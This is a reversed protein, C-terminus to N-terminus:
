INPGVGETVKSRSLCSVKNKKTLYAVALVIWPYHIVWFSAIELANKIPRYKAM